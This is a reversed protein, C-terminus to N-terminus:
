KLKVIEDNIIETLQYKSHIGVIEKLINGNSDLIITHPINQVNNLYADILDQSPLLTLYKINNKEVLQKAIDIMTDSYNGNQELTDIVIGVFQVDKDKYEESLSSLTSLEKICPECFTGWINLVTLKKGKLIDQDYEKKDLDLAKFKGFPGPNQSIKTEVQEKNDEDTKVQEQAYSKDESKVNVQEQISATQADNQKNQCAVFSLLIFFILTLLIKRSIKM